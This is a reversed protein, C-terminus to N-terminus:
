RKTKLRIGFHSGQGWQSEVTLEGKNKEVIAKTISLGLGMGRAKTTFLPELIRHLDSQHIGVGTDSVTFQVSDGEVVASLTLTGGEPMADRANRILNKFAITIQSEDVLVRPLPANINFVTEIDQGIQITNIASRLLPRLDVLNLSADPLKVVDSLATVVNDILTVQRDIRELHEKIKEPPPQNANLLFYASTKVANLPNRIEHAIGGAVKGLTSYKEARVLDAQAQELENTRQQVRAELSENTEELRREIDKLDSIDRIIGTFERCGDFTIESVAVHIPFTTGDRRTGIAERGIGIIKRVGTQLYNKMYGDHMAKYPNPMLLKVNQGVMEDQSFGFMKETAPNATKVIGQEDITIIADVANTLIADLKAANLNDSPGGSM